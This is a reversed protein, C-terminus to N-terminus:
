VVSISKMERLTFILVMKMKLSKLIVVIKDFTRNRLRYYKKPLIMLKNLLTKKFDNEYNRGITFNQYLLDRYIYDHYLVFLMLELLYL